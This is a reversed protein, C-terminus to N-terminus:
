AIFVNAEEGKRDSPSELSELRNLFDKIVSRKSLHPEDPNYVTFLDDKPSLSNTALFLNVESEVAQIEEITECLITTIGDNMTQNLVDTLSLKEQISPPKYAHM